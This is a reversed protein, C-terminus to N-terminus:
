RLGAESVTVSAQNAAPDCDPGNPYTTSAQVPVRALTSKRGGVTFTAGIEVQGAPLNYVEAFGVQTDNPVVTASCVDEPDPGDCGQDISDSGPSLQVPYAQCAGGWCVTLSLASVRAALPATVTVAVGPLAGIMTCGRSVAPTCATALM